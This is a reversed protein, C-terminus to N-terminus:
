QQGALEALRADISRLRDEEAAIAGAILRLAQEREAPTSIRAAIALADASANPDTLIRIVENTM